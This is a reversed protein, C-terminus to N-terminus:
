LEPVRPGFVMHSPEIGHRQCHERYLSGYSLTVYNEPAFGLREATRDIWDPSGELELYNGIPTEDLCLVGGAGPQSYETRYKEYRFVPFYGLRELIQQMKDLSDLAVEIEERTKHRAQLPTGKFTLVISAGAARLRLLQQRDRLVTNRTDLVVNAEFVRPQRVLFGLGALRNRVGSPDGIPLKVESEFPGSNM